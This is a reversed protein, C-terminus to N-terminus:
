VEYMTEFLTRGQVNLGLKKGIEAQDKMLKQHEEVAQESWIIYYDSTTKCM